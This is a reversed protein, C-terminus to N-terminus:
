HRRLLRTEYAHQTDRLIQNLEMALALVEERDDRQCALELQRASQSLLDAGITAASTKLSHALRSCQRTDGRQALNQISWVHEQSEALLRVVLKPLMFRSTDEELEKLSAENLLRKEGANDSTPRPREPSQSGRIAELLSERKVPKILVADAGAELCERYRATSDYGSLVIVTLPECGQRKRVIPIVELGGLKPMSLDIVLLRYGGKEFANVAELGDSVAVVRYGLDELYLQILRRYPESDEAVLASGFAQTHQSTMM